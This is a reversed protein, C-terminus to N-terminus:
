RSATVTPRRSRESSRRCRWRPRSRSDVAPWRCSSPSSRRRRRRSPEWARRALRAQSASPWTKSRTSGVCPPTVSSSTPPTLSSSASPAMPEEVCALAVDLKDGDPGLDVPASGLALATQFLPTRSPDPALELAALLQARPLERHEQSRLTRSNVEALLEGFTAERKCRVRLPVVVGSASAGIVVDRQGTLKSVLVYYASSLTTWLAVGERESLERLRSVLVRELSREVQARRGSPCSPRAKDLSLELAPPAGALEARWFRKARELRGLRNVVALSSLKAGSASAVLGELVSLVTSGLGEAAACGVRGADYTLLLDLERGVSVAATVAYTTQEESEVGEVVPGGLEWDKAEGIPYNEFVVITEFLSEGRPVESWSQVESLSVHEYERLEAQRAQLGSLWERIGEGDEVVVRMPLTNIYLGVASEIGEVPASRGSTTAGFVVDSEGAREALALGWAAQVLTNVTVKERRAYREVAATRRADVTWRRQGYGLGEGGVFGLETAGRLGRLESRWMAEARTWDQRKLWRLFKGYTGNREGKAEGRGLEEYTSLVERFLRPLSWGDMLVHHSSMVVWYREAGLQFLGLRM